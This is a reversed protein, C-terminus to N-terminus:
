PRNPQYARALIRGSGSTELQVFIKASRELLGLSGGYPKQGRGSLFAEHFMKTLDKAGCAPEPNRSTGIARTAFGGKLRNSHDRTRAM